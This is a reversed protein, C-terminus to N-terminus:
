PLLSGSQSHLQGPLAAALGSRGRGNNEALKLMRRKSMRCGERSASRLASARIPLASYAIWDSLQKPPHRESPASPAPRAFLDELRNDLLFMKQCLHKQTNEGGTETLCFCRTPRSPLSISVSCRLPSPPSRPTGWLDCILFDSCPHTIRSSSGLRRVRRTFPM